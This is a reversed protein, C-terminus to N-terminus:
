PEFYYGSLIGEWAQFLVPEKRTNPSRKDWVEAPTYGGLNDHPRIQNYWFRYEPLAATLQEVSEVSM